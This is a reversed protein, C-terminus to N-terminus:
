RNVDSRLFILYNKDDCIINKSKYTFENLKKVFYSSVNLEYKNGFLYTLPSALLVMMYAINMASMVHINLLITIISQIIIYTYICVYSFEIDKDIYERLNVILAFLFLFMSVTIPLGFTAIGAKPFCFSIITFLFIFKNNKFFVNQNNLLQKM